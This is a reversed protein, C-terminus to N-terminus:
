APGRTRIESVASIPDSLEELWDHEHQAVRRVCWGLADSRSRAIGAGVLTDLIQREPM